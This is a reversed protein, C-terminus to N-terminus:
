KGYSPAATSLRAAVGRGLRRVTRGVSAPLLSPLPTDPAYGM